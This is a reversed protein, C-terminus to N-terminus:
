GWGYSVLPSVSPGSVAMLISGPKLPSACSWFTCSTSALYVLGVYGTLRSFIQGQLIVVSILVGAVQVFLGGMLAASSHWMDPLLSPRAPPWILRGSTKDDIEFSPDSM